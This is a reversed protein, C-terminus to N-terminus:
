SANQDAVNQMIEARWEETNWWEKTLCTWWNSKNEQQPECQTLRESLEALSSYRIYPSIAIRTWQSTNLYVGHEDIGTRTNPYTEYLKERLNARFPVQDGPGDFYNNAIINALNVGVLLYRDDDRLYVFGTNKGIFLNERYEFLNDVIGTERNLVYYFANTDHNYLLFLRTGSEDHVQGVFEESSLLRTSKPPTFDTRPIKFYVTKDKYTVRYAYDSIKETRLGHDANIDLLQTQEDTITFYAVTLQGKDLDAIRINGWVDTENLTTAFYYFGETPYVIAYPPVWSFVYGFVATGDFFDPKPHQSGGALVNIGSSHMSVLTDWITEGDAAFHAIQLRQLYFQNFDIPMAALHVFLPVLVAGLFLAIGILVIPPQKVDMRM